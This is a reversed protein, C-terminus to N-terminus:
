ERESVCMYWVDLVYEYARDRVYEYARDRKGKTVWAYISSVRCVHICMSM